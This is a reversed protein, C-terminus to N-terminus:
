GLKFKKAIFLTYVLFHVKMERKLSCPLDPSLHLINILNLSVTSINSLHVVELACCITPM